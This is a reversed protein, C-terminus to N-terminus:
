IWGGPEANRSVPAIDLQFRGSEAKDEGADCDELEREVSAESRTSLNRAHLTKWSQLSDCDMARLDLM